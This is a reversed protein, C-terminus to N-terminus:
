VFKLITDLVQDPTRSSTDIVIADHAAKLPAVSRSSDRKDREIISNLVNELMCDKGESKLQKYRREARVEPSATIFIKLDANPAVVTGIDRGEMLIRKTTNIKNMLNLTIAERVEPLISIKSAYIAIEEHNLDVDSPIGLIDDKILKIISDADLPDIEKQICLYALSRYSKGSEVYELDFKKAIMRGIRGKGSASAGDLAIVISQASDHLKEKLSIVM